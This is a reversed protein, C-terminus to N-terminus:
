LLFDVDWGPDPINDLFDLGRDYHVAVLDDTWTDADVMESDTIGDGWEDEDEYARQQETDAFAWQRKPFAVNNGHDYLYDAKNLSELIADDEQAMEIRWDLEGENEQRRTTMFRRNLPVDELKKENTIGMCFLWAVLTKWDLVGSLAIQLLDEFEGYMNGPQGTVTQSPTLGLALIWANIITHHGCGSDKKQPFVKVIRPGDSFQVINGYSGDNRHTSWHLQAAAKKAENFLSTYRQRLVEKSSSDLFYVCFKSTGGEEQDPEEQIVTLFTHERTTDGVTRPMLWCRRPRSVIFDVDDNIGAQAASMISSSTALSFGGTFQLDPRDSPAVYSSTQLQDIAEVVSAIGRMVNSLDIQEGKRPINPAMLTKNEKLFHLYKTRYETQFGCAQEQIRLNITSEEDSTRLGLHRQFCEILKTPDKLDHQEKFVFNRYQQDLNASNMTPNFFSFYRHRVTEADIKLDYPGLQGARILSPAYVSKTQVEDWSDSEFPVNHPRGDPLNLNSDLLIAELNEWYEEEEKLMPDLVMSDLKMENMCQLTKDFTQDESPEQDPLVFEYCKLFAVILDRTAGGVRALHVVDQLDRFFQSTSSWDQHFNINPQLGLVYSWANLITHYGCTWNATQLACPIWTAHRPRPVDGIDHIKRYWNSGTLLKIAATFIHQRAEFDHHYPRSDVVSITPKFGNNYQIVLLVIHHNRQYPVIMPRGFRIAESTSVETDVKLQIDSSILFSYGLSIHHSLTLALTVSAIALSTEEDSLFVGSHMTVCGERPFSGPPPEVRITALADTVSDVRLQQEIAHRLSKKALDFPSDFPFEDDHRRTNEAFAIGMNAAVAAPPVERQSLWIRHQEIEDDYLSNLRRGTLQFRRNAPVGGVDEKTYSYCNFFALILQWDLIIGDRALIFLRKSDSAFENIREGPEFTPDPTLGLALAWANLITYTTTLKAHITQPSNVWLAYAPKVVSEEVSTGKLWDSEHVHDLAKKYINQREAASTARQMPDLIHVTVTDGESTIQLVALVTHKINGDDDAVPLPLILPRGPRIVKDRFSISFGLANPTFNSSPKTRRSSGTKDMLRNIAMFVISILHSVTSTEFDNEIRSEQEITDKLADLRDRLYGCWNNFDTGFPAESELLPESDDGLDNEDTKGRGNGAQLNQGILVEPRLENRLEEILGPRLEERLQGRVESRLDDRLQNQVHDQLDTQLQEWARQRMDELLHNWAREQMEGLLQDWAANRLDDLLHTWAEPRMEVLLQNFARARVETETELAAPAGPIDSGGLRDGRGPGPQGIGKISDDGKDEYGGHGGANDDEGSILWRVSVHESGQLDYRANREEPSLVFKRPNNFFLEDRGGQWFFVPQGLLEITAFFPLPGIFLSREEDENRYTVGNITVFTLYPVVVFYGVTTDGRVPRISITARELEQTTADRNTVELTYTDDRLAFPPLHDNSAVVALGETEVNERAQGFNHFSYERTDNRTDQEIREFLNRFTDSAANNTFYAKERTARTAYTKQAPLVVPSRITATDLIDNRLNQLRTWPQQFLPQAFDRAVEEDFTKRRRQRPIVWQVLVRETNGSSRRSGQIGASGPIHSASRERIKQKKRPAAKKDTKRGRKVAM